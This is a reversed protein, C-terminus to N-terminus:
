YTGISKAREVFYKYTEYDVAPSISHDSHVIYGSGLKAAPLNEMLLQDVKAKDNTELVRIDLGGMLAIKEGYTKKIRLLDMGAKVEMAQLCDMGAEILGPLLPAVFGCSHIIVKCGISHAYDFTNKHFPKIMENYM